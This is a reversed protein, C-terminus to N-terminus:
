GLVNNGVGGGGRGKLMALVKEAGGTKTLTYSNAQGGGGGVCM